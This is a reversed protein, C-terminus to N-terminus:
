YDFYQDMFEASEMHDGAHIVIDHEVENILKLMDGNSGHSDALVLIKFDNSKM